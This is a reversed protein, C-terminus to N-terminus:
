TGAATLYSAFTYIDTYRSVYYRNVLYPDDSTNYLGGVMKIGFNYYNGILSLTYDNYKGSPYCLVYPVKGTIRTLAKQSESLEYDTTAEDMADMDDHTYGHSQISVLGSDSMERVQEPTMKHPIVGPANGIVFVTAKVQYKELLPLLEVYNDDYGDDFTLIVPKEYDELHALDEFWIADYGNDVLYKLQEEMNSPSVFLEDIGWLDDSVAHYMLVPVNVNETLPLKRAGPTYYTTGDLAYAPYGMAEAAANVSVYLTDDIVDDFTVGNITIETETRQVLAKDSAHATGQEDLGAAHLFDDAAVVDTGDLAYASLMTGDLVYTGAAATLATTEPETPAETSPETQPADTVPALTTIGDTAPLTEDSVMGDLGLLLVGAVALLVVLIVALAIIAQKM